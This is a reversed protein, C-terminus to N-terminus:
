ATVEAGCGGDVTCAVSRCDRCLVRFEGSEYLYFLSAFEGKRTPDPIVANQLSETLETLEERSKRLQNRLKGNEANVRRNEESLQTVQDRSLLAQMRAMEANTIAGAAAAREEFYISLFLCDLATLMEQDIFRVAESGGVLEIAKFACTMAAIVISDHTHSDRSAAVALKRMATQCRQFQEPTLAREQKAPEIRQASQRAM